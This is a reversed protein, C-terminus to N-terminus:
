ETSDSTNQNRRFVLPRTQYNLYHFGINLINISANYDRNIYICRAPDEQLTLIKHVKHTHHGRRVHLNGMKKFQNNHIISTCYEDVEYLSFHHSMKRKLGKGPCPICGKMMHDRSHNGYFIVLQYGAEIDRDSLYKHKIFDFLKTESQLTRVYRRFKLKRFLIKEYFSRVNNSVSHKVNIFEKFQDIYTTRSSLPKPRAVDPPPDERPKKKRKKRKKTKREQPITGMPTELEFINNKKKECNIIENSRKTYTESRRRLASYQFFMDKPNPNDNTVKSSVQTEGKPAGMISYPDTEGPDLGAFRYLGNLLQDCESKSLNTLQDFEKDEDVSKESPKWGYPRNRYEKHIFLLCCTFGDTRIQYYFDYPDQNFINTKKSQNDLELIRTWIDQQYAGANNMLNSITAFEPDSKKKSPAKKSSSKKRTSKKCTSQKKRFPIHDFIKHKEIVKQESKLMEMISSSNLLIFHPINSRRQPFIQNPRRDLDEIQRNIYMAYTLYSLPKCQIDYAVNELIIEPLLYKRNDRIWEHYQKDSKDIHDLILDNKLNFMDTKLQSYLQKRIKKDKEQRILKARPERHIINIYKFLYKIFQTKLNTTLCTAMQNGLEDLVHNKHTFSLRNDHVTLSFVHEYYTSMQLREDITEEGCPRGRKPNSKISITKLVNIFFAKDMIPIPLNQEYLDTIYCKVFEYGVMVMQNLDCVYQEIIPQIIIYNKLVKKLPCKITRFIQIGEPPNFPQKDELLDSPQIDDSQNFLQEDVLLDDQQKEEPLDPHNFPQQTELMPLANENKLQEDHQLEMSVKNKLHIILKQGHQQTEDVPLSDTRRKIRLVHKIKTTSKM